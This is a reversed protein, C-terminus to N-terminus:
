VVSGAKPEELASSGGRPPEEKRELATKPGTALTAPPGDCSGLHLCKARGAQLDSVSGPQAPWHHGSALRRCRPKFAVTARSDCGFDPPRWRGHATGRVSREAM